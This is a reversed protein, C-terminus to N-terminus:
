NPESYRLFPRHPKSHIRRSFKSSESSQLRRRKRRKEEGELSPIAHLGGTSPQNSVGLLCATKRLSKLRMYARVCMMKADSTYM